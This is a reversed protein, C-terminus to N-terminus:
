QFVKIEEPDASQRDAAKTQSSRMFNIVDAEPLDMSILLTKAQTRMQIASLMKTLAPPPAMEGEKPPASAMMSRFFQLVNMLASADEPTTSVVELAINIVSGLKIGGQTSKVKKFFDGGLAGAAEGAAPGQSLGGAMASPSVASVMWLDYRGSVDNVRSLLDPALGKGAGDVVQKVYLPDGALLLSNDIFTLVEGDKNTASAPTWLTRGKYTTKTGGKALIAAGIRAPDFSGSIFGVGVTKPPKGGEAGPQTVPSFGAFLVESVDRRIDVGTTATFEDLGQTETRGSNMFERGLGSDLLARLNVGAVADAKAPLMSLLKADAAFGAVSLFVLAAVARFPIAISAGRASAPRFFPMM